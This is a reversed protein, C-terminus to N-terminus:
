PGESPPPAAAGLGLDERLEQHEARLIALEAEVAALRKELEAVRDPGSPGAPGSPSPAPGAPTVTAREPREEEAWGAAADATTAPAAHAAAGPSPQGAGGASGYAAPGPAAHASSGADVPGGVLQAFRAEKQGPQRELRVVLPEPRTALAELTEEVQSLSAFEHMRETRTRLEGVTQPGRLALVTLVSV